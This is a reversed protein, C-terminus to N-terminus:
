KELEVHPYDKQDWDKGLVIKIKLRDACRQIHDCMINLQSYNVWTERTVPYPMIDFAESCLDGYEDIKCHKSDLTWTVVKPKDTVVWARELMPNVKRGLERGKRWLEHQRNYTRFGELITLDFPPNKIIEAGLRKLDKHCTSLEKTSKIGWHFTKKVEVEGVKVDEEQKDSMIVKLETLIASLTSLCEEVAAIVRVVQNM